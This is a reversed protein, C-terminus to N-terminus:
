VWINVHQESGTISKGEKDTIPRERAQRVQRTTILGTATMCNDRTRAQLQDNGSSIAAGKRDPVHKECEM